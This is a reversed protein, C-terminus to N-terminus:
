CIGSFSCWDSLTVTVWKVECAAHTVECGSFLSVNLFTVVRVRSTGTVTCDIYLCCGFSGFSNSVFRRSHWRVAGGFIVIFLWSNQRCSCSVRHCREKLTRKNLDGEQTIHTVGKEGTSIFWSPRLWLHIQTWLTNCRHTHTHTHTFHCVLRASGCRAVCCSDCLILRWGVVSWSGSEFLGRSNQQGRQKNKCIFPWSRWM